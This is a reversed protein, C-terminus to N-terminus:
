EATPERGNSAKADLLEKQLELLKSRGCSIFRLSRKHRGRLLEAQQEIKTIVVTIAQLMLETSLRENVVSTKRELFMDQNVSVSTKEFLSLGRSVVGFFVFEFTNMVERTVTPAEGTAHTFYLNLQRWALHVATGPQGAM